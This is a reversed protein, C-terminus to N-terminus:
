MPLQRGEEMQLKHHEVQIEDVLDFIEEAAGPFKREFASIIEPPPLIGDENLRDMEDPWYEKVIAYERIGIRIYKGVSVWTESSGALFMPVTIKRIGPIKCLFDVARRVKSPPYFWMAQFVMKNWASWAREIMGPIRVKM